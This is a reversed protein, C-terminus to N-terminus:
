CFKPPASACSHMTRRVASATSRVRPPARSPFASRNWDARTEGGCRPTAQRSIAGSCGITARCRKGPVSSTSVNGRGYHASVLSSDLRLATQYSELAELPRSLSSLADGLLAHAAARTPDKRICRRISEAAEATRGTQVEVVGRLLLAESHDSQHRLIKRCIAEADGLKGQRALEFAKRLATASANSHSAIM